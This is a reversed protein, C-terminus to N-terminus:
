RLFFALRLIPECLLSRSHTVRMRPWGQLRVQTREERAKDREGAFTMHARCFWGQTDLRPTAWPYRYRPFRPKSRRFRQVLQFYPVPTARCAKVMPFPLGWRAALDPPVQLGCDTTRNPITEPDVLDAYSFASVLEEEGTAIQFFLVLGTAVALSSVAMLPM